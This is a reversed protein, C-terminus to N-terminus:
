LEETEKLYQEEARRVAETLIGFEKELGLAGPLIKGIQDLDQRIKQRRKADSMKGFGLFVAGYSADEACALMYHVALHFMERSLIEESFVDTQDLCLCHLAKLANKRNKKEAFKSQLNGATMKLDLWARLFRDAYGGKKDRTYRLEFLQRIQTLRIDGPRAALAEDLLGRRKAPDMKKYYDEPWSGRGDTEKRIRLEQESFM